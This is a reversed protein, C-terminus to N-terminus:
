NIVGERRLGEIEEDGYGLLTRLVEVTHEGLQPAPRRIAADFGSMKVPFGPLRVAGATPHEVAKIIGRARVQPDELTQDIQLIPAVPVDVEVLADVVEEVTREAVWRELQETSEISDVGMARCLRDRMRPDAGIYVWGDAAKFMGFTTLTYYERRLQWPLKGTATYQTISVGTQAIMCDLQAVDILQGEGTRDRHRLAALIAIVAWLGPDLDGHWEAPRIPPGEPDVIDGTLRYWGSMSSGMPAFSPRHSYPGSLGFGSLSAYIIDPKVRRVDEYGLGLKEMTGPKFNEVLVDCREALELAIERGRPHKLNLVIGRKNRNFYLFVPSVGGVLPPYFRAVEGWPPEVKVVEAGLDALVMTCYPGFYVHTFDLVRVDDLLGM